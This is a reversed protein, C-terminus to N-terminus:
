ESPDGSLELIVAEYPRLELERGGIVQADDGADHTSLLVRVGRGGLSLRLPRDSTNLLVDVVDEGAQRRYGLLADPHQGADLLTIAGAHLAPRRRRLAILRRYLNLLSGPDREETAVNV